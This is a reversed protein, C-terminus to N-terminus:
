RLLERLREMLPPLDLVTTDWVTDPDISRVLANLLMRDQELDWRIRHVAFFMAELASELM